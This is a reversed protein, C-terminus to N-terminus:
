NQKRPVVGTSMSFTHALPIGLTSMWGGPMLNLVKLDSPQREHSVSVISMVKKVQDYADEMDESSMKADKLKPAPIRDHGIFSM